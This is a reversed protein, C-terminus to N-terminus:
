KSERWILRRAIFNRLVAAGGCLLAFAVAVAAITVLSEGGGGEHFPGFAKFLAALLGVGAGFAAARPVNWARGSDGSVFLSLLAM